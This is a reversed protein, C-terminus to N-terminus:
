TMTGKKKATGGDEGAPAEVLFLRGGPSPASEGPFLLFAKEASAECFALYRDEPARLIEGPRTEAQRFSFDPCEAGGAPEPPPLGPRAAALAKEVHLERPKGDAGVRGWDWLRYTTDSNQQVEFLKVGAGIAHILGTPIFYTEFRKAEHRILLEELRGTAVAERVARKTAGPRLGAYIPGPELICWAENKAEGGLHAADERSPHVQISLPQNTEIVKLILPFGPLLDALFKEARPGSVIRGPAEPRASVLWREVGWPMTRVWPEFGSAGASM